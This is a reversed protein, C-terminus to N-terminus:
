TFINAYPQSLSPTWATVPTCIYASEVIRVDYIVTLLANRTKWHYLINQTLTWQSTSEEHVNDQLLELSNKHRAQITKIRKTIKGKELKVLRDFGKDRAFKLLIHICKDMRKNVKGKMYLYKLVRHFAEVYMNTNICSGKRYCAAWQEKRKVYHESFYKGFGQTSKNKDLNTITSELLSEFTQIDCEELLVRLNHYVTAELDIDKLLKINERWARDVHWTCLLKKPTCAFTSVWATYYQQADDSMFWETKIDGTNSKVAEYFYKVLAGDERNAICWAVPYGEGFEDVIVISILNFDYGNTGHTSDVCVIGPFKKMMDAQLPTQLVLIFDERNLGIPPADGQSKYLLVPNNDDEKLEEVWAKVSLADDRHREIGKLGYTREINLLDKRTTLHMRCFQDQINDRIDDLIRDFNVGQALQGALQM